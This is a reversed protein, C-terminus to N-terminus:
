GPYTTQDRQNKKGSDYGVESGAGANKVSQSDIVALSPEENRGAQVRVKKRLTDNIREFQNTRKLYYFYDKVTGAAPFDHPLMDWQCGTKLQYLIANVVERLDTTKPRGGEPLEILPRLLEWQEDNLDTKYPKRLLNKPM